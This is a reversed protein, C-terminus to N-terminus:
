VVCKNPVTSFKVLIVIQLMPIMIQVKLDCIFSYNIATSFLTQDKREDVNKLTKFVEQLQNLINLSEVNGRGKMDLGVM